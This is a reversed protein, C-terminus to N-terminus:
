CCPFDLLNIRPAATFNVLKLFNKNKTRAECQPMRCPHHNKQNELGPHKETKPLLVKRCASLLIQNTIRYIKKKDILNIRTLSPPYEWQDKKLYNRQKRNPEKNKRYCHVVQIFTSFHRKERENNKQASTKNKPYNCKVWKLNSGIKSHGYTAQM